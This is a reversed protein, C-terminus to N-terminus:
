NDMLELIRGRTRDHPSLAVRVRDGPRMRVFNRVRTSAAHARVRTQDSLRLLVVSNPLLEEVTAEVEREPTGGGDAEDPVPM